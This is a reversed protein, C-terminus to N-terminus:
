FNSINRLSNYLATKHGKELVTINSNWCNLYRSGNTKKLGKILEDQIENEKETKERKKQAMVLDYVRGGNKKFIRLQAMKDTGIRSWGMPRSSLRDSFVHSIHGEASCGIIEYNDVKIEIGSWNNEIYRKAELVTNYRTESTTLELIKKFVRKLIDKDAEDVADKLGQTIAENDLHATAAKIYKNLHYNDLVFKSKPIWTLGQKIWAAGDGSLYMTEVKNVDYVEDIYKSVELWLEESNRMGGFYRVNKLVKRKTTSKEYDIGEHVYIMKPMLINRQNPNKQTQRKKKQQAVHDEDAEIFLVRNEKKHQINVSPQVVELNHIKDMVAQKSIKEVYSAKEGAKRYSSDVAEDIANIVVDATVRDHPNIGVISDVLYKRQGTKKSLFYTRSYDVRGFSTLVSANDKRIVEWQQKRCGSKRLHEDMGDLVEAVINRGLEFIDKQLGLVLNAVDDGQEIFSKVTERINAIGFDLFQQISNYM